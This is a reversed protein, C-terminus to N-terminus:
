ESSTRLGYGGARRASPDSLALTARAAALGGIGDRVIKEAEGVSEIRRM